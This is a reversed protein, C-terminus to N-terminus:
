GNFLVATFISMEYCLEMTPIDPLSFAAKFFDYASLPHSLSAGQKWSLSEQPGLAKCM